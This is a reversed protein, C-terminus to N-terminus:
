FDKKLNKLNLIYMSKSLRAFDSTPPDSPSSTMMGPTSPLPLSEPVSPTTISSTMSSTMSSTVSSTVSSLSSLPTPSSALPTSSTATSSAPPTLCKSTTTSTSPVTSSSLSLDAPESSISNGKKADSTDQISSSINIGSSSSLPLVSSVPPVSCNGTLFPLYSSPISPMQGGMLLQQQLQQILQLQVLQQQQLSYLTTHLVALDSPSLNNEAFQAVAAKTAGLPELVVNNNPMLQSFPFMLNPFRNALDYKEIIDREEFEKEMKDIGDDENDSDNDNDNFDDGSDCNYNSYKMENDIDNDDIQLDNEDEEDSQDMNGEGDSGEESLLGVEQINRYREFGLRDQPPYNENENADFFVVVKKKNCVKKHAIFDSLGIFEERCKGCVHADGGPPTPSSPTEPTEPDLFLCFSFRYCNQM